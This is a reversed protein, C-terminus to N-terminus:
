LKTRTVVTQATAGGSGRSDDWQVSIECDASSCVIQGCASEDLNAKLSEVWYNLDDAALDGQSPATCTMTALDYGGIRAVTLNVRMADLIAYTQMVAQSRELASQSNRLATAQMAAVGLLGIGLILVAVMVEILGAGRQGIRTKIQRTRIVPM